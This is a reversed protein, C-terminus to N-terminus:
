AREAGIGGAKPDGVLVVRQLVFGVAHCGRQGPVAGTRRAWRHRAASRCRRGSREVGAQRAGDLLLAALAPRQGAGYTAAELGHEAGVETRDAEVIASGGVLQGAREVGLGEGDAAVHEDPALAVQGRGVVALLHEGVLEGVHRLLLPM